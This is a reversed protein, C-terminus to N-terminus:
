RCAALKKDGSGETEMDREVDGLQKSHVHLEQNAAELQRTLEAVTNAVEKLASKQRSELQAVLRGTDRGSEQMERKM